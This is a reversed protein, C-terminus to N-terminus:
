HLSPIHLHILQRQGISVQHNKRSTSQRTYQSIGRRARSVNRWAQSPQSTCEQESSYRRLKVGDGHRICVGEKQVVNATCGETSCRKIKAGHRICVGEKDKFVKNTCEETSCRKVKACWTKHVSRGESCLTTQCGKSGYKKLKTSHRVRVGENQPFQTCGESSCRKLKLKAVRRICVGGKQAYCLKHM